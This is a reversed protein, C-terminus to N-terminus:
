GTITSSPHERLRCGKKKTKEPWALSPANSSRNAEHSNALQRFTQNRGAPRTVKEL